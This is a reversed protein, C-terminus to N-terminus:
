KSELIVTATAVEAIHSLTVHCHGIGAKALVAQATGKLSIVPKGKEDNLVMVDSIECQGVWGEGLAKFFAEKAAFRAAFHEAAKAKSSCYDIEEQSFVKKTFDDNREMKAALRKVEVLDTGIGVICRNM